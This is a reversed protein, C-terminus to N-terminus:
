SLWRRSLLFSKRRIRHIANRDFWAARAEERLTWLNEQVFYGALSAPTPSEALDQAEHVPWYRFAAMERHAETEIIRIERSSLRSKFKGSNGSLIPRGVNEWSRSLGALDLAAAREFFRLSRSTFRVRLFKCIARMTKEPDRILDEYRVTMWTSGPLKESWYVAKRQEEAWLRGVYYPHYHCFVSSRASVAVDRPDRVLHIFQPREHHSLIEGIHHIMFTSKCGWRPKGSHRRYIEYIAAYISYLDHRPCLGEVEEPAIAITWPAFHLEVLRIADKVLRRFAEGNRLDGYMPLLGRLDRMIHPPHPIAVDKLENLMLRLLNSGSRETGVIFLPDEILFNTKKGRNRDRM